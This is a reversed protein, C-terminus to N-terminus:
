SRSPFIGSLAICFTLVLYPQVNNFPQSGGTNGIMSPDMTTGDTAAAYAEGTTRAPFHDLPRAFTGASNNANVPHSHAPIQAVTLTTTETGGQQGIVYPSLGAGQGMHIPVRSQLNPLAFTTRGDGGYFTGLLSFLATNQSIAMLQGNCMAWGFPAFNFGFIRIEGLFPDAM